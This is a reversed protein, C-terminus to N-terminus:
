LKDILIFPYRHPLVKIIDNIKFVTKESFDTMQKRQGYILWNKPM